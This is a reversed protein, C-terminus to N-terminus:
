NLFRDTMESSYPAHAFHRKTKSQAEHNSFASPTVGIMVYKNSGNKEPSIYNFATGGDKLESLRCCYVSNTREQTNFRLCQDTM